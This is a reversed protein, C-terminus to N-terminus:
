VITMAGEGAVCMQNIIRLGDFLQNILTYTNQHHHLLILYNFLSCILLIVQNSHVNTCGRIFLPPSLIFYSMQTRTNNTVKRRKQVTWGDREFPLLCRLCCSPSDPDSLPPCLPLCPWRSVVIDKKEDDTHVTWDPSVITAEFEAVGALACLHPLLCCLRVIHTRRGFRESTNHISTEQRGRLLRTEM